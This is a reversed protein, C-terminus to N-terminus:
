MTVRESVWVRGTPAPLCRHSIGCETGADALGCEGVSSYVSVGLTWQVVTVRLMWEVVIMGPM